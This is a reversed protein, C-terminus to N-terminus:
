RLKCVKWRNFVLTTHWHMLRHCIATGMQKLAASVAVVARWSTFSTSLQRQMMRMLVPQILARCSLLGSNSGIEPMHDCAFCFHSM